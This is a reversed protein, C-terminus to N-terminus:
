RELHYATLFVLNGKRSAIHVRLTGSNGGAAPTASGRVASNNGQTSVAEGTFDIAEGAALKALEGDSLNVSLKGSENGIPLPSVEVRYGGGFSGGSRTLPDVSLRAHGVIVKTTSPDIRLQRV